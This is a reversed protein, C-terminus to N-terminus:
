VHNYFNWTRLEQANRIAIYLDGVECMTGYSVVEAVLSVLEDTTITVFIAASIDATTNIVSVM